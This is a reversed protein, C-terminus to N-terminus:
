RVGQLLMDILTTVDEISVNGDNDVDAAAPATSGSLLIDILATVDEISLKGDGDVDGAKVEPEDGPANPSVYGEYPYLDIIMFLADNFEMYQGQVTVNFAGYQFWGDGRGYWGWNVHFLGDADIGDVVFAHGDGIDEMSYPIPHYAEIQATMLEVWEEDTYDTTNWTERSPWAEIGLLKANESYGLKMFGNTQKRVNSGSGSPSFNMECSHAAYYCLWAVEDKQEDTIGPVWTLSGSENFMTYQDVIVDYDITRAPLTPEQVNQYSNRYGPLSPMDKPYEWYNLIQAMALGACGVSSYDVTYSESDYYQPCHRNFPNGQAWNSKMLPGIPTRRQAAKIPQTEGKFSKLAEIQRKYRGLYAKTNEPLNNMDLSGETNYALVQKARDDGAIIIWGGGQINFVYYANGEVSSAEAHALKIDAVAPAKFMGQAAVNHKMFDSAAQRAADVSINGASATMMGAAALVCSFSIRKLNM